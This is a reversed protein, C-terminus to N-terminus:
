GKKREERKKKKGNKKKENREERRREKKSRVSPYVFIDVCFSFLYVSCCFLIYIFNRKKKRREEKTTKTKPGIATHVPRVERKNRTKSKTKVRRKASSSFLEKLPTSVAFWTSVIGAAPDHVPALSTKSWPPRDAWAHLCLNAIHAVASADHGHNSIAPLPIPNRPGCRAPHFVSSPAPAPVTSVRHQHTSFM